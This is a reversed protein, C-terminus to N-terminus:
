TCAAAVLRAAVWLAVPREPVTLPDASAPWRAPNRLLNTMWALGSTGGFGAAVSSILMIVAGLPNFLGAVAYLSGGALWPVFAIRRAVQQRDPADATFRALWGLSVAIAGTYTVAGAAALALRAGVSDGAVVVWDGVGAVGSFLLYGTAQMLDVSLLLWLLLDVLGRPRGKRLQLGLAGIGALALNALSGAAAKFRIAADTMGGDDCECFAANLSIMRGGLLQCSLGHGLGEHSVNAVVYVLVAAAVLTPVSPRM